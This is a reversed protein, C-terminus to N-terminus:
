FDRGGKSYFLSYGSPAEELDSHQFFSKKCEPCVVPKPKDVGKCNAQHKMLSKHQAFNKGCKKKCVHIKSNPMYIKPVKLNNESSKVALEIVELVINQAVELKITEEVPEVAAELHVNNNDTIDTQEDEHHASDLDMTNM